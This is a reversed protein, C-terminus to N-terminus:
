YLSLRKCCFEVASSISNTQNPYILQPRKILVLWVGLRAAIARKAEEGGAAGSAKAVVCTIQWQQWLAMEVAASVPPRLAIIEKSSFGAAIAGKIAEVSPLVRVFLVSSQRLPAFQALHRYGVTFLVRQRRLIDTEILDELSDVYTVRNESNEVKAREIGSISQREYRLYYLQHTQLHAPSSSTMSKEPGSKDPEGKALESNTLRSEDFRSKALAISQQSVVNAFPHSADLICRVRWKEVFAKMELASLAGVVVRMTQTYLARAAETTVTVVFPVGAEALAEALLVSESTGGILWVCGDTM